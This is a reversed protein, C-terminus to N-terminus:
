GMYNEIEARNWGTVGLRPFRGKTRLEKPMSSGGDLWRYSIERFSIREAAIRNMACRDFSSPGVRYQSFEAPIADIVRQADINMLDEVDRSNLAPSFEITYASRDFGEAYLPRLTMTSAKPVVIRRALYASGPRIRYPMSGSCLDRIVHGWAKERGGVTALGNRLDIEEGGEALEAAPASLQSMLKDLSRRSLRLEPYVASLAPDDITELLGICVLQEVGFHTIGLAESAKAVTIRDRVFGRLQDLDSKLFTAFSRTGGSKAVTRVLGEAHLDRLATDSIRLYKAAGGGSLRDDTLKRALRQKPKFLDPFRSKFLRRIFPWSERSGISRLREVLPDGMFEKKTGWDAIAGSVSGPWDELIAGAAALLGVRQEVPLSQHRNRPVYEVPAAIAYALTWGLEFAAGRGLAQVDAPLRAMARAHRTEEPDILSTMLSTAVRDASSLHHSEATKLDFGCTECIDIGATRYWGLKGECAPCTAILHEGTDPSFPILGHMWVARHYPADMLSRPAIRRVRVVLDQPPIWAGHFDCKMLMPDDLIPLHRLRTIEAGSTGLVLALADSSLRERHGMDFPIHHASGAAATILATTNHMNAAASRAVFGLLSEYRFPVCPFLLRPIAATRGWPRPEAASSPKSPSTSDTDIM